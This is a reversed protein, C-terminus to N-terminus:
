FGGGGDEGRENVESDSYALQRVHVEGLDVVPHTSDTFVVLCRFGRASPFVVLLSRCERTM